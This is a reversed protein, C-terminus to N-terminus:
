VDLFSGKWLGCIVRQLRRGSYVTTGMDPDHVVAVQLRRSMSEAPFTTENGTESFVNSKNEFCGWSYGHRVPHPLPSPLTTSSNM